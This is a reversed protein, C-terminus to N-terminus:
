KNRVMRLSFPQGEVYLTLVYVGEAMGLADASLSLQNMGAALTGADVTSIEKGALDFVKLEVKSAADLRISV